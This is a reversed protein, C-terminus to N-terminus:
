TALYGGDLPLTHSNIMGASRSCLFLVADAVESTEVMRRIPARNLMRDIREPAEARMQEMVPTAVLTPAIANVTVGHEGWEATLGRIMQELGGKSALYAITGPYGASGGVSSINVIRGAARRIMGPAVHRCLRFAGGLNVELIRSGAENPFTEARHRESIGACNVLMDPAGLTGELEPLARALAEADDVACPCAAGTAGKRRVQELTELIGAENRDICGARAGAAAFALAVARGIGSGAGTVWATDGALPLAPASPTDSM